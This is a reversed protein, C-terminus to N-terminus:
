PGSRREAFVEGFPHSLLEILNGFPDECYAIQFPRDPWITLVATRRRGGSEAIRASLKEIDRDDFCVHWPGFRFQPEASAAEAPPDVFEFLEVGVGNGSVLQAVLAKRFRPGLLQGSIGSQNTLLRPGSLLRLEFVGCYWTVAAQIDPVSLGVHNVVV